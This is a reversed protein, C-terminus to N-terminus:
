MGDVPTQETAGEEALDHLLIPLPYAVLGSRQCMTAMHERLFPHVQFLVGQLGFQEVQVDTLELGDALSYTAAYAVEGTAIPDDSDANVIKYSLSVLYGLQGDEVTTPQLQGQTEVNPEGSPDGPGREHSCSHMHVSLLTIGRLYDTDTV